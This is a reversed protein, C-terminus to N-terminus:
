KFNQIRSRPRLYPSNPITSLGLHNESCILAFLYELKIPNLSFETSILHFYLLEIKTFTSTNELIEELSTHLNFAAHYRRSINM